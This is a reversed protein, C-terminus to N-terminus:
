GRAFLNVVGDVASQILTDSAGQIQETTLDKSQALLYKWMEQAKTDPSVLAEAAWIVRNAHNSTGPDEGAITHAAVVVAVRLKNLMASSQWLNYLEKYTAM